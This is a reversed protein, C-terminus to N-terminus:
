ASVRVHERWIDGLYVQAIITPQWAEVAHDGKGEPDWFRCLREALGREELQRMLAHGRRIEFAPVLGRQDDAKELLKICDPHLGYINVKKAERRAWAMLRGQHEHCRYDLKAWYCADWADAERKTRAIRAVLRIFHYIFKMLPKPGAFGCHDGAVVNGLPISAECLGIVLQVEEIIPFGQKYQGQLMKWHARLSDRRAETHRLSRRLGM